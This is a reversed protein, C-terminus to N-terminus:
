SACRRPRSVMMACCGNGGGAALGAAAEVRNGVNEGREKGRKSGGESAPSPQPPPKKTRRMVSGMGVVVYTEDTRAERYPSAAPL